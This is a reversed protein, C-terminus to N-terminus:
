VVECVSISIDYLDDLDFGINILSQFLNKTKRHTEFEVKLAKIEEESYGDEGLRGLAIFFKNDVKPYDKIFLDTSKDWIRVKRGLRKKVKHGESVEEKQEELDKGNLIDLKPKVENYQEEETLSSDLEQVDFKDFDDKLKEKIRDLVSKKRTSFEDGYESHEILSNNSGDSELTPISFIRNVYNKLAIRIRNDDFEISVFDDKKIRRFIQNLVTLDICVKKKGKIYWETFQTNIYVFRYKKNDIEMEFSLKDRDFVLDLFKIDRNLLVFARSLPKILEKSFSIKEITKLQRM